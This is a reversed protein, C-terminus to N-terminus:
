TEHQIAGSTDIHPTEDTNEHTFVSSFFDALVEAKDEDNSAVFTGHENQVHLESVGSKNKRKSNVYKWFNKSNSKATEAIHKEREKRDKRVLKKVRNRARCFDKYKEDSHDKM